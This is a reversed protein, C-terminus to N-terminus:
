SMSEKMEKIEQELKDVKEQLKDIQTKEKTSPNLAEIEEPSLGEIWQGDVFRAKYLGNPLKEEVCDNPITDGEKIIVPELYFGESDVKYVQIM